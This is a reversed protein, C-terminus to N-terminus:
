YIFGEDLNIKNRQKGKMLCKTLNLDTKDEESLESENIIQQANECSPCLGTICNISDEKNCNDCKRITTRM